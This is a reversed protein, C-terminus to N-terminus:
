YIEVIYNGIELLSPLIKTIKLELANFIDGWLFSLPVVEIQGQHILWTHIDSNGSLGEEKYIKGVKQENTFPLVLLHIITLFAFQIEILYSNIWYWYKNKIVYFAIIGFIIGGLYDLIKLKNIEKESVYDRYTNLEDFLQPEILVHHNMNYIRQKYAEETKIQLFAYANKYKESMPFYSREILNIMNNHKWHPYLNFHKLGYVDSFTQVYCETRGYINWKNEEMKSLRLYNFLPETIIKEEKYNEHLEDVLDDDDWFEEEQEEALYYDSEEIIRPAFSKKRYKISERARILEDLNPREDAEWIYPDPAIFAATLDQAETRIEPRVFFGLSNIWKKKQLEKKTDKKLLSKLFKYKSHKKIEGKQMVFWSPVIRTAPQFQIQEKIIDKYDPRQSIFKFFKEEKEQIKNIKKM